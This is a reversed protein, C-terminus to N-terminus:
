QSQLARYREGATQDLRATSIAALHLNNCNYIVKKVQV